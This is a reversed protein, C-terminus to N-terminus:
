IVPHGALAQIMLAAIFATYAAAAAWVATTAANPPLLRTAILGAIPVAHLAHTAFFHAARLDGVERSWGFIPLTTGTTTTGILHGTGSAMTGAAVLTLAFTLILGLAVSLHLAPPLATTKSRWIAIGMILSPSTLTVAAVGMLAYLAAMIPTATNFHSATGFTAAGAVWLIEAIIATCVTGTYIRWRRTTMPAPMYRAFYALSILYIALALQFKLPKLWINENQFLRTDLAMALLTPAMSLTLLLALVTFAPADSWMRRFNPQSTHPAFLAYTM